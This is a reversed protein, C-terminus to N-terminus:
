MWFLSNIIPCVSVKRSRMTNIGLDYLNENYMNKVFTSILITRRSNLLNVSYLYSQTNQITYNERIRLVNM